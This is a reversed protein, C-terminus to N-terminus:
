KGELINYAEKQLRRTVKKIIEQTQETQDLIYCFVMDKCKKELVHRQYDEKKLLLTPDLVVQPNPCNWGFDHIMDVGQSERLSVASFKSILEGCSKIEKRTYGADKKGFSAAYSIRMTSPNHLFELFYDEIHHLLGARWVQDSGVIIADFSQCHRELDKSTYYADTHPVYREFFPIM